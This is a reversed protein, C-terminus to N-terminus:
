TVSAFVKLCLCIIQSVRLVRFFTAKQKGEKAKEKVTPECAKYDHNQTKSEIHNSTSKKKTKSLFGVSKIVIMEEVSNSNGKSKAFLSKHFTM